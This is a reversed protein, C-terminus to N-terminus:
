SQASTQSARWLDIAPQDLERAAIVRQRMEALPDRPEAQFLEGSPQATPLMDDLSLLQKMRLADIISAGMRCNNTFAFIADVQPRMEEIRDTWGQLEDDNYLYNYRHSPTPHKWWMEANRGHLRYYAIPSTAINSPGPLKSLRPLDVNVFGLGLERLKSFTEEGYWGSHRFEVNVPIGAGVLAKAMKELHNVGAPNPKFAYPFQALLGSLRGADRVPEIGALFPKVVEDFQERQHTMEKPTKVVFSFGAPVKKLMGEFLAPGPVRYYTTNVEVCDFMQAYYPLFESSPMGQPYITGVWDKFHYGSTGVRVEGTM